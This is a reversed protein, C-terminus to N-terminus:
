VFLRSSVENSLIIYVVRLEEDNAVLQKFVLSHISRETIRQGEDSTKYEQKDVMNDKHACAVRHTKAGGNGKNPDQTRNTSCQSPIPQARYTPQLARGEM